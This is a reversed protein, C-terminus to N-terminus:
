YIQIPTNEYDTYEKPHIYTNDHLEQSSANEYTSKNMSDDNPIIEQSTVQSKMPIMDKSADHRAQPRLQKRCILCTAITAGVFAFVITPLIYAVPNVEQIIQDGKPCETTERIVEKRDLATSSFLTTQYDQQCIFPKLTSCNDVDLFLRDSQKTLALCAPKTRSRVYTSRFIRYVDIWYKSNVKMMAVVEYNLYALTGNYSTCLELADQRSM